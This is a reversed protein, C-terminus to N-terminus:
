FDSISVIEIRWVVGRILTLDSSRLDDEWPSFRQVDTEFLRSRYGITHSDCGSFVGNEYLIYVYYQSRFYYYYIFSEIARTGHRAWCRENVLNIRGESWVESRIIRGESWYTSRFASTSGECAAANYEIAGKGWAWIIWVPVRWEPGDCMMDGSMSDFLTAAPCSM